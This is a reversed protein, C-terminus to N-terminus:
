SPNCRAAMVALLGVDPRWPELNWSAKDRAGIAHCTLQDRMGSTDAEPQAATVEAWVLERGADGADRAWGTPVVALSRGGEREGWTASVIGRTGLSFAVAQPAAPTTTWRLEARGPSVVTFRGGGTPASLGGVLTGDADRVALGGDPYATM